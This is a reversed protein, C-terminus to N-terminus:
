MPPVVGNKEVVLRQSTYHGAAGPVAVAFIRKGAVVDARTADTFTVVPADTPVTVTQTGGKYSLKLDRGQTGQVVTDVNANTMTSNPLLDWSYHGEGTGRAAEPFVLVELATLKGNKETRAATGIFAGPKIESLEIKKVASVPVDQKADLIVTDGSRRKVTITDGAVSVIQGRIREPKAAPAQAAAIGAASLAVVALSTKLRLSM